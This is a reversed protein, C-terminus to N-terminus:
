LWLYGHKGILMLEPSALHVTSLRMIPLSDVSGVEARTFYLPSLSDLNKLYGFSVLRDAGTTCHSSDAMSTEYADRQFSAEPQFNCRTFLVSKPSLAKPVIYKYPLVISTHYCVCSKRSGHTYHRQGWQYLPKGPISHHM